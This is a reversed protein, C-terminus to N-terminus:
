KSFFKNSVNEWEAVMEKYGIARLWATICGNYLQIKGTEWTKDDRDILHALESPNRIECDEMFRYPLEPNLTYVIEIFTEELNRARQRIEYLLSALAQDYLEFSSYFPPQRIHRKALDPYELMLRALEEVSHAELNKDLKYYFEQFKLHEQPPVEVKEGDLWRKVEQYGWRKQRTKHLLGRILASFRDSCNQPPHIEESIHIVYIRQHTMQYFPNEGKLLFLLSIGLAYYDVEIGFHNGFLEPASFEITKSGSASYHFSFEGRVLSSIGFDGLLVKRHEEDGFFLNSPKLDRHVIYREHLYKLAEVVQPIVIKELYKEKFPMHDNLTGGKAYAMIEVFRNKWTTFDLIKVINVHDISIMERLLDNKPFLNARYVKVAVKKNTQVDECIFVDAEAGYCLLDQLIRYRDAILTNKKFIGLSNELPQKGNASLVSTKQESLRDTLQSSLKKTTVM